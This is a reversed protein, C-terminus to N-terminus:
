KKIEFSVNNSEIEKDYTVDLIKSENDKITEGVYAPLIIEKEEDMIKVEIYKLNYDSGTQNIVEATIKTTENETKVEENVIEIEKAKEEQISYTNSIFIIGLAIIIFIGIAAIKRKNNKLPKVKM